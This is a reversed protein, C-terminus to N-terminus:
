YSIVLCFSIELSSLVVEFVDRLAQRALPADKEGEVLIGIADHYRSFTSAGFRLWRRALGGGLWAQQLTQSIAPLKRTQHLIDECKSLNHFDVLIKIDFYTRVRM